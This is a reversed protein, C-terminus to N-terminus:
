ITRNWGCVTLHPGISMANMKATGDKSAKDPIICNKARHFYGLATNDGTNVTDNNQFLLLDAKGCENEAKKGKPDEDKKQDDGSGDGRMDVVACFRNNRPYDKKGRKLEGFADMFPRAGGLPDGALEKHFHALEHKKLEEQIVPIRDLETSELPGHDDGDAGDDDDGDDGDMDVEDHVIGDFAFM